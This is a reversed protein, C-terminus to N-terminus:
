AEMVPKQPREVVPSDSPAELNQFLEHEPYFHRVQTEAGMAFLAIFPNTLLGMIGGFLLKIIPPIWTGRMDEHEYLPAVIAIAIPWYWWFTIVAWWGGQLATWCLRELRQRLTLKRAFIVNRESGTCTARLFWYFFQVFRSSGEAKGMYLPQGREAVDEKTKVGFWSGHPSSTSPLHMLPPWPRTLSKTGHRLDFNVLTSTIIYTVLQQIIVTVGMDGAVTNQPLPWVRIEKDSPTRYMACAVGFNAAGSIIMAGFGHMVVLYFIQQKNLPGLSLWDRWTSPRHSVVGSSEFPAAFCLKKGQPVFLGESDDRAQTQTTAMDILM